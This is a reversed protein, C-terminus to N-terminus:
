YLKRLRAAFFGDLGDPGPLTRLYGQETPASGLGTPPESTFDPHSRLFLEAQEAGESSDMSCVAYVLLGGPRVVAQCAELIQRQMNTLSAFDEATRRYRLEPHRRLTGLGSCPADVLVVDFDGLDEPLPRSVDVARTEIKAGLGLREAEARLKPLKHAHLDVAVVDHTQALHCAKGGPAACADLVRAGAPVQAYLGVLQAAEDQVQFLGERYGLLDEVRGPQELTLGVPSHRTPTARIGQATWDALLADRTTKTTNVRVVVAPSTNDAALLAKTKPLGLQRAWRRVLWDPHSEELALRALEDAGAPVPLEAAVAVKRLIANVFGAARALGLQKLAEVTDGVAAHTPVRLYKLQYVGIRLGALVRDELASLKRDSFQAIWADLALQRRVTGYALETALAADRVDKPRFEDLVGDLVVNLYADTAAVRALVRLALTRATEPRSM